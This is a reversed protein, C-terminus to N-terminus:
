VHARGIQDEESYLKTLLSNEEDLVQPIDETRSEDLSFNGEEPAGFM